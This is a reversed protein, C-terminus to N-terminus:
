QSQSFGRLIPESDLWISHVYQHPIMVRLEIGLEPHPIRAELYLPHMTEVASCKLVLICDEGDRGLARGLPRFVDLVSVPCDSRLIVDHLADKM